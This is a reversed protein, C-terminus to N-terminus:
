DHLGALQALDVVFDRERSSGGVDRPDQRRASIERMLGLGVCRGSLLRRM